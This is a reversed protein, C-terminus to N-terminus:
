SYNSIYRKLFMSDYFVFFHFNIEKCSLYYGCILVEDYRRQLENLMELFNTKVDRMCDEYVAISEVRNPRRNEYYVLYPALYDADSQLALAAQEKAM